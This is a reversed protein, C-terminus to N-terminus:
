RPSALLTFKPHWKLGVSESDRPNSYWLRSKLLVQLHKQLVNSDSFWQFILQKEDAM